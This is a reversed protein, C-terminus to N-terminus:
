LATPSVSSSLSPPTREFLSCPLNATRKPLPPDPSVVTRCFSRVLPLGQTCLLHPWFSFSSRSLLIPNLRHVM